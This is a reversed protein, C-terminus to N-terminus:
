TADVAASASGLRGDVPAAVLGAMPGGDTAFGARAEVASFV